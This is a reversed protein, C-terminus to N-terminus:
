CYSVVRLEGVPPRYITATLGGCINSIYSCAVVAVEVSLYREFVRMMCVYVFKESM